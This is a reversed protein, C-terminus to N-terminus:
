FLGLQAPRVLVWAGVASSSVVSVAGWSPPVSVGIPLFFLVPVGLFLALAASAWSGSGSGRFPSACPCLGAPCVASPFSVWLGSAAACARVCASSRAALRAPFPLSPFAAVSFVSAAPFCLRVAADVGSACGVFVPAGVRVFGCAVSVAAPVVSRSGSFGFAGFGSFVSALCSVCAAVFCRLRPFFALLVRGGGFRSLM